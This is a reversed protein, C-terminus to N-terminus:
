SFQTLFPFGYHPGGLLDIGFFPLHLHTYNFGVAVRNDGVQSLPDCFQLGFDLPECGLVGRQALPCFRCLRNLCSALLPPVECPVDHESALVIHPTSTRHVYKV